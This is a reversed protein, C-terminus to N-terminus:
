RTAPPPQWHVGDPSVTVTLAGETGETLTPGTSKQEHEATDTWTIKMPGSGLVKFRYHFDAGPAITQTGFSASPYEVQVLSIPTSTRNLVTANIYASHCGALAFAAFLIFAMGGVFRTKPSGFLIRPNKAGNLIVAHLNFSDVANQLLPM